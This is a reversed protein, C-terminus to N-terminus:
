PIQHRGSLEPFNLHHKLQFIKVARGVDTDWLVITNDHSGSAVIRADVPHPLLCYVHSKHHKMTWKPKWEAQATIRWM